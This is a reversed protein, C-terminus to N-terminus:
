LETHMHTCTEGTKGITDHGNACSNDGQQHKRRANSQLIQLSPLM